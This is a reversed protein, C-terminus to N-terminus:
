GGRSRRRHAYAAVSVLELPGWLLIPAYCAAMVVLPWGTEGLFFRLIRWKTTPPTLPHLGATPKFPDIRSEFWAVLRAIPSPLSLM